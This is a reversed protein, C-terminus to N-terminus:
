QGAHYADRLRGLARQGCWREIHRYGELAGCPRPQLSGSTSVRAKPESRVITGFCRARPPAGLCCSPACLPDSKSLDFDSGLEKTFMLGRLDVWPIGGHEEASGRLAEANM